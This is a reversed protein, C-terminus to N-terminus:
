RLARSRWTIPAPLVVGHLRKSTVQQQLNNDLGPSSLLSPQTGASEASCSFPEPPTRRDEPGQGLDPATNSAEM